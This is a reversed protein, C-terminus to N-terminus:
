VGCNLFLNLISPSVNKLALFSKFSAKYISFAPAKEITKSHIEGLVEFSIVSFIEIGVM